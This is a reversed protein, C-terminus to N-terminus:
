PAQKVAPLRSSQTIGWDKPACWLDHCFRKKELWKHGGPETLDIITALAVCFPAAPRTTTESPEHPRRHFWNFNRAPHAKRTASLKGSKKSM